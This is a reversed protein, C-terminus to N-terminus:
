DIGSLVTPTCAEKLEVLPPSIGCLVIHGPGTRPGFADPLNHKLFQVFKPWPWAACYKIRMKGEQSKDGFSHQQM